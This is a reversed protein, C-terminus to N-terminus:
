VKKFAIKNEFLSSQGKNKSPSVQMNNPSSVLSTLNASKLINLVSLTFGKKGVLDMYTYGMLSKVRGKTVMQKRIIVLHTM